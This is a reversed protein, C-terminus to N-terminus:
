RMRVLRLAGAVDQIGARECIQELEEILLDIQNLFAAKDLPLRQTCLAWSLEALRREDACRAWPRIECYCLAALRPLDLGRRAHLVEASLDELALLLSGYLAPTNMSCHLMRFARSRDDLKFNPHESWDTALWAIRAFASCNSWREM